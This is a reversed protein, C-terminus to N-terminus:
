GPASASMGHGVGGLWMVSLVFVGVLWSLVVALVVELPRTGAVVTASLSLCAWVSFWGLGGIAAVSPDVWAAGAARGCLVALGAAPPVVVLPEPHASALWWWAAAFGLSGAAWALARVPDASPAWPREGAPGSPGVRPGDPLLHVLEGDQVGAAGLTDDSQLVRGRAVLVFARRDGDAGFRALGADGAIRQVLEVAPLYRPLTLTLHGGPVDVVQVRLTLANM